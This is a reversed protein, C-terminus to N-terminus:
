CLDAIEKLSIEGEYLAKGVIAAECGIAQLAQLDALSSVGGSAILSVPCAGLIDRYLDLSPGGLLGDKDTDTVMVYRLGQLAQQAIYDLIDVDLSAQWGRVVLKRDRCDAALIIKEPGHKQLWSQFLEPQSAAISGLTVQAAGASLVRTLTAETQIGGSFDIQLNTQTAIAELVSLNVVSGSRAGDLDVLHLYQIGYDELQRAFELPTPAYTTVKDFAGRSLRVCKGDLLDIAPIIRM